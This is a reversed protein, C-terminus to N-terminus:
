PLRFIVTLRTKFGEPEGAHLFPRFRWQQVAQTAAAILEPAGNVVSLKQVTGDKGVWAEFSVPGQIGKTRAAEPYIPEVRALLYEQAIEPAIRTQPEPISTPQPVQSQHPLEEGPPMRFVVTGNRSIVLEDTDADSNASLSAPVQGRPAPNASPSPAPPQSGTASVAPLNAQTRSQAPRATPRNWRARGLMWGLAIAVVILVALLVDTLVERKPSVAELQVVPEPSLTNDIDASSRGLRAAIERSFDRLIGLEHDAFAHPSRSFLEIIGTLEQASLIPMVLISRVGLQRCLEPDLRADQQTDACCQSTLTRVCEASLGSKLNLRVGLQPAAEGIAARCVIDGDRRLAVAGGDARTAASARQLLENLWLDLAVDAAVSRDGCSSLADM